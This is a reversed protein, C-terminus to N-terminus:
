ISYLGRDWSATPRSVCVCISIDMPTFVVKWSYASQTDYFMSLSTQPVSCYKGTAGLEVDVSFIPSLGLESFVFYVHVEFDERPGRHDGLVQDLLSGM